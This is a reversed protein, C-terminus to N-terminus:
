FVAESRLVFEGVSRDKGVKVGVLRLSTVVVGADSAVSGVKVSVDKERAPAEEVDGVAPVVGDLEPLPVVMGGRTVVVAVPEEVLILVSM